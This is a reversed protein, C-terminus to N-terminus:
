ICPSGASELEGIKERLRQIEAELVKREAEGKAVGKAEGDAFGEAYGEDHQEKYHELLTMYDSRWKVHKR